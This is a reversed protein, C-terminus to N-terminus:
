WGGAFLAALSPAPDIVTTTNAVTVVIAAVSILTAAIGFSGFVRRTRRDDRASKMFRGCAYLALALAAVAVIPALVVLVEHYVQFDRVMVDLAPAGRGGHYDTLGLRVQGLTDDLRADGPGGMLMPFLSAFPAIAGQINALVLLMSCVVLISAVAGSAAFAVREGAAAGGARLFAQWLLASLAILVVLLVAAIVAKVVHYRVWYDVVRQLSPTFGASGSDWYEIFAARFGDRLSGEDAFGGGAWSTAVFRPAIVFAFGLGVAVAALMGGARHSFGASRVAVSPM